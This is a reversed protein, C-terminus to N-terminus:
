RTEESKETLARLRKAADQRAHNAGKQWEEGPHDAYEVRQSLEDALARVRDKFEALKAKYEGAIEALVCANRETARHRSEEDVLLQEPVLARTEYGEWTAFTAAESETCPRWDMWEDRVDDIMRMEYAVVRGASESM